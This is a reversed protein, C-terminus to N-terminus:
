ERQAAAHHIRDLGHLRHAARGALGFIAADRGHSRCSGRHGGFIGGLIYRFLAGVDTDAEGIAVRFVLDRLGGGAARVTAAYQASIVDINCHAAATCLAIQGDHAAIEVGFLIDPQVGIVGYFQHRGLIGLALMGLGRAHACRGADSGSHTGTARRKADGAAHARALAVFVAGASGLEVRMHVGTVLQ